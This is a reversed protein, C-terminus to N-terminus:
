RDAVVPDPDRGLILLADELAELAGDRDPVEAPKAQAEPDHPADDLRVAPRDADLAREAGARAEGDVQGPAPRLPAAPILRLSQAGYRSPEPAAAGRPHPRRRDDARDAPGADRARGHLRDAGLGEGALDGHLLGRRPRGERRRDRVRRP